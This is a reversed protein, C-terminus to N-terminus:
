LTRRLRWVGGLAVAFLLAASAYFLNVVGFRMAWGGAFVMSGAQATSVLALSSSSVRGRMEAPTEGQLLATAAVMLVAVSLGIGVACALAMSKNHFAALLAVSAGVGSLGASIMYPSAAERRIRAAVRTTIAAGLITGAGILSGIAGFLYADSHLVDRVFVSVLAGFCGMAFTGATMWLIVFSFKPHGLIFRVGQSLEGWIARTGRGAVPAPRHYALTTLMAASFVFTLSDAYYCAREGFWGVLASAAAPSAIRVVQMTQQMLGSAAVLGERKVLLPVTVSQAPAFFSSVSSLMFCVAYIHWRKWAFALLLILAARTVDSLIMTRRPNWRDVFVGAVPGLFVAPLLFAIMVRTMDRATGHMRFVVAVQVAFLAIFDGLLSVMQGLWLRRFPKVLLVGRMTLMPPSVVLTSM